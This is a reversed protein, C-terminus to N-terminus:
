VDGVFEHDFGGAVKRLILQSPDKLFCSSSAPINPYYIHVSSKPQKLLPKTSLTLEIEAGMVFSKCASLLAKNIGM